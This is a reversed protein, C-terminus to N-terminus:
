GRIGHIRYPWIDGKILALIVARNAWESINYCITGNEKAIERFKGERLAFHRACGSLLMSHFQLKTESAGADSRQAWGLRSALQGRM